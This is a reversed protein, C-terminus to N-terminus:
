VTAHKKQLREVHKLLNEEHFKRKMKLWLADSWRHFLCEKSRTGLAMSDGFADRDNSLKLGKSPLEPYGMLVPVPLYLICSLTLYYRQSPPINSHPCTASSDSRQSHIHPIDMTHSCVDSERQAWGSIAAPTECSLRLSAYSSQFQFIM